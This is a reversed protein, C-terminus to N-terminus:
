IHRSVLLIDPYVSVIVDGITLSSHDNEFPIYEFGEFPTMDSDTLMRLAEISSEQDSQQYTSTAEKASIHGLTSDIIAYDMGRLFFTKIADRVDAYRTTKFAVPKKADAVIQKRRTPNAECYEGLKNISIRPTKKAM